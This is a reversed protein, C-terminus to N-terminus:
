HTLILTVIYKSIFNYEPWRSLAFLCITAFGVGYVVPGLFYKGLVEFMDKMDKFM